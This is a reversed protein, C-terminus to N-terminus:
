ESVGGKLSIGNTGLSKLLVSQLMADVSPYQTFTTPKDFARPDPDKYNINRLQLGYVDDKIKIRIRVPLDKLDTAQWVAAEETKAKDEPLILRYVECPHGDVVEKGVYKKELRGMKLEAQNELDPNSQRPIEAYAKQGPLAVLANQDPNKIFVVRDLNFQQLLGAAEPPLSSQKLQSANLDWRMRGYLTAMTFPLVLPADGKVAPLQLEARATFARSDSIFESLAAAFFPVQQAYPGVWQARAVSAGLLATLVIGALFRKM